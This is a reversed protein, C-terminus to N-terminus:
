LNNIHIDLWNWRERLGAKMAENAEDFTMDADKAVYVYGGTSSLPWLVADRSEAQRIYEHLADITDIVELFGEKTDNWKEKARAVFAPDQFLDKYWFAKDKHLFEDTNIFGDLDFDWVPGATLKGNRDKHFYVSRPLRMETNWVLEKVFWVDIFSDRDILDEYPEGSTITEDVTNIFDQIYAFQAENLVDEDPEQIMVPLDSVASRFKNQEDYMTDFELLYGGTLAEGETDTSKMETINVRDKSIKIKECLYYLGRYTGNLFLEVFQGNPTWAISHTKKALAFGVAYRLKSREGFNALLCWRKDKPMGLVAAKKDLKLNYAKKPYHYWTSNGRGKISTMGLDETTGDPKWLVVPSDEVWVTKSTIEKGTSTEISVVPLDSSLVHIAFDRTKGSTTTITLVAPDTLDIWDGDRVPEGNYLVSEGGMSYHIQLRDTSVTEPFCVPIDAGIAKTLPEATYGDETTLSLASFEAGNRIVIEKIDIVQNRHVQLPKVTTKCCLDEGGADQLRVTLGAPVEGPPCFFLFSQESAAGNVRRTITNSGNNGTWQLGNETIVVDGSLPAPSELTLTAAEEPVNMFNFKLVGVATKFAYTDGEGYGILPTDSLQDGDRNDLYGSLSLRDPYLVSSLILDNTGKRFPYTAYGALTEGEQLVGSFSATRGGSETTFPVQKYRGGEDRVIMGIVDGELWEFEKGNHYVTRTEPALSARITTTFSRPSPDEPLAQEKQCSVWLCVALATFILRKM